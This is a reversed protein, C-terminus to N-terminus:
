RLNVTEINQDNHQGSPVIIFNFSCFKCLNQIPNKFHWTTIQQNHYWPSINSVM